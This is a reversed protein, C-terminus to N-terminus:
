RSVCDVSKETVSADLPRGLLIRHMAAAAQLNTIQPSYLKLVPLLNPDPIPCMWHPSQCVGREDPGVLRLMQCSTLGVAQQLLSPLLWKNRCRNCRQSQLPRMETAQCPCHWVACSEAVVAECEIEVGVERARDAPWKRKSDTAQLALRTSTTCTHRCKLGGRTARLLRSSCM